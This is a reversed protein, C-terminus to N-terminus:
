PSVKKLILINECRDLLEAVLRDPYGLIIRYWDHVEGNLNKQLSPFVAMSKYGGPKGDRPSVGNYISVLQIYLVFRLVAICEEIESPQLGTGPLSAQWFTPAYWAHTVFRKRLLSEPLSALEAAPVLILAAKPLPSPPATRSQRSTKNEPSETLHSSVWSRLSDLRAILGAGGAPSVALPARGM